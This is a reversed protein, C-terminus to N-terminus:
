ILPAQLCSINKLYPQKSDGQVLGHKIFLYITLSNIILLIGNAGSSLFYNPPPPSSINFLLFNSIWVYLLGNM